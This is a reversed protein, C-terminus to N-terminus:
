EDQRDSGSHARGGAERLVTESRFSRMRAAGRRWHIRGRCLAAAFRDYGRSVFEGRRGRSVEGIGRRNEGSGRGARRHRRAGSPGFPRRRVHAERASFQEGKRRDGATRGRVPRSGNRGTVVDIPSDGHSMKKSRGEDREAEEARRGGVRPLMTGHFACAGAFLAAAARSLGARIAAALLAFAAVPRAARILLTASVLAALFLLSLRCLPRGDRRTAGKRPAESRHPWLGVRRGRAPGPQAFDPRLRCRVTSLGPCM